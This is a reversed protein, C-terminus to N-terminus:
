DANKPNICYEIMDLVRKPGLLRSNAAHHMCAMVSGRDVIGVEGRAEIVNRLKLVKAEIPAQKWDQMKDRLDLSYAATSTLLMAAIAYKM